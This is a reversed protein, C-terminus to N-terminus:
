IELAKKIAEQLREPDVPKDIFDEPEKGLFQGMDERSFKIGSKQSVGTLMIVPTNNTEPNQRLDYFVEFGYKKPMMVDLIILNPLETKAKELGSEGDFASIISFDGIESIIAKVFEISDPEDDVILITKKEKGM